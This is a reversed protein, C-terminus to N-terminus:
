PAPMTILIGDLSYTGTVGVTTSGSYIEQGGFNIWRGGIGESTDANFDTYRWNLGTRVVDVSGNSISVAWTHTSPNLTVIFEYAAGATVSMGTDVYTNTGGNVPGDFVQWTGNVSAIQWTTTSVPASSRTRTEYILYRLNSPATDARFMFAYGYYGSTASTLVYPRGVSGYSATKGSQTVLTVGLRRGSELPTTSTVTGTSTSLSNATRWAYAWNSGAAGLATGSTFSSGVSYTEFKESAATTMDIRANTGTDINTIIAPDYVVGYDYPTPIWDFWSNGGLALGASRTTVIAASTATANSVLESTDVRNDRAIVNSCNNLSLIPGPSNFFRNGEFLLKNFVAVNTQGWPLSTGAWISAAGSDGGQNNNEFTNNRVVVNSAGKGESWLPQVINAEFQIPTSFINRFYCNEVTTDETSLLIGHGNTYLFQCAAIRVNATNFRANRLIAQPSLTSPLAATFTITTEPIANNSTVSAVTRTVPATSSNLNDYDADYFQVVDGTQLRLRYSPCNALTLKASNATDPTVIGQYVTDHLNIVDDGCGTFTGNKIILNGESETVHIGDAATTLPTRGGTARRIHCNDLQWNKMGAEFLWGMGPMSRIEVSDYTLHTNDLVKFCAMEYYLHRICYTEGDVLSSASPFTVHLVNGTSTAAITTGGPVSYSGPVSHVLHVPDMQFLKTWPTVRTLATQTADLDPFTIDCQKKDASLNSVVGLSAIPKYAWDWDLILNKIVIRDCNQQLFACGDGTLQRFVLTSGQGDLTFDDLNNISISSSKALYYTGTPIILKSAGQNKCDTLAQQLQSANTAAASTSNAVFNYGAMSVTPGSTGPNAPTFATYGTAATVGTPLTSVPIGNAVPLVTADASGNYIVLSDIILAGPGTIGMHFIWTGATYAGLDLPITVTRSSEGPEGIWSQRIDYKDGGAAPRAYAYFNGPYNTATATRFTIVATYQNGGALISSPTTLYEYFTSTNQPTSSPLTVQLGGGSAVALAYRYNTGHRSIVFAAPDLTYVASGLAAFSALPTLLLLGLIILSPYLRM